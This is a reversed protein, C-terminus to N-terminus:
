ENVLGSQYFAVGSFVFDDPSVVGVDNKSLSIQSLRAGSLGGFSM